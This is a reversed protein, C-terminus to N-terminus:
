AILKGSEILETLRIIGLKGRIFLQNGCDFCVCYPKQSRSPRITLGVGCVPCPFKRGFITSKPVNGPEGLTVNVNPEPRKHKM